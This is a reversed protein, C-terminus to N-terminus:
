RRAHADSQETPAEIGGMLAVLQYRAFAELPQPQVSDPPKYSRAIRELVMGLKRWKFAPNMRCPCPDIVRGDMHRAKLCRM